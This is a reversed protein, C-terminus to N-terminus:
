TNESNFLEAYQRAAATIEAQGFIGDVVALMDAGARILPGGNGASIGGIAVCPITLEARARELLTAEARPADPKTRSPFFAGFAVYDAGAAQAAAARFWDNYCSVGIIRDGLQRRADALHGDEKGLHVGDADSALALEIDDNIIFLRQQQRCLTRLARAQELRRPHNNSKDRYQIIRAGGEIAAGVRTLLEHTTGGNTIAYLGYLPQHM